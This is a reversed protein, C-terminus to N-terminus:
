KSIVEPNINESTFIMNTQLQNLEMSKVKGIWDEKFSHEVRIYNESFGHMKGDKNESEFLVNVIKGQQSQYFKRKKKESLIRLMSARKTKINKPVQEKMKKAGTNERTSYPFVHLYDVELDNLFHYTDMFHSESEGPFGVIVDVGICANPMKNKIKQVTDRYLNTQYKRRMKHLIENNGSQLPVHFHPVFYNSTSVFDIIQYYLLNPEISSIRFRKDFEEKEIAKILDIFKESTGFGFDGINLGTLVVEKVMPDIKNMEILTQEINSSRSKGRALPITCFSCFYNCGDQVKFFTRTRDGFSYAPTFHHVEKINSNMVIPLQASKLSQLHQALNFKEAAGFVADVGKIKAIYNPKLQAFCGIIVVKSAPNQKKVKKVWDQCKKDANETVSCTNLVYIDALDKIKKVEFGQSQLNQAISSTESFNLKCGLTHLAISRM